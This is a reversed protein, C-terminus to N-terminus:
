SSLTITIQIGLIFAFAKGFFPVRLRQDMVTQKETQKTIRVAGAERAKGRRHYLIKYRFGILASPNEKVHQFFKNYETCSTPRRV